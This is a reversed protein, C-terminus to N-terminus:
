DVAEEEKQKREKIANLRPSAMAWRSGVLHGWTRDYRWTRCRCAPRHPTPWRVVESARSVATAKWAGVCPKWTRRRLTVAM